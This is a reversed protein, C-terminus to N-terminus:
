MLFLLRSEKGEYVGRRGCALAFARTRSVFDGRVDVRNRTIEIMSLHFSVIHKSLSYIERRCTNEARTRGEKRSVTKRGKGYRSARESSNVPNVIMERMKGGAPREYVRINPPM